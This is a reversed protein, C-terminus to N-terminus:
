RQAMYRVVYEMQLWVFPPVTDALTPFQWYDMGIARFVSELVDHTRIPSITAAHAITDQEIKTMTAHIGPVIGNADGMSYPRAMEVQVRPPAYLYGCITSTDGMVCNLAAQALVMDANNGSVVLKEVVMQYTWGSQQVLMRVRERELESPTKAILVLTLKGDAGVLNMMTEIHKSIQASGIQRAYELWKIIKRYNKTVEVEPLRRVLAPNAIQLEPLATHPMTLPPAVAQGFPAAVGGQQVVSPVQPNVLANVSQAPRHAEASDQEFVHRDTGSARSRSSSPADQQNGRRSAKAAPEANQDHVDRRRKRGKVKTTTAGGGAVEARVAKQKAIERRTAKLSWWAGKWGGNEFKVRYFLKVTDFYHM